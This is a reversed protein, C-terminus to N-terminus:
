RIVGIIRDFHVPGFERSDMSNGRNDGMLFYRDTNLLCEFDKAAVTGIEKLYPEEIREGDIWVEGYSGYPKITVTELPMGVIRKIVYGGGDELHVLVIDGRQPVGITRDMKVIQYHNLTPIMSEGIIMRYPSVRVGIIFVALIVILSYIIKRARAKVKPRKPTEENTQM